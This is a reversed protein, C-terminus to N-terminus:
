LGTKLGVIPMATINNLRVRPDELLAKWVALLDPNQPNQELQQSLEAITEYWLGNQAFLLVREHPSATELQTALEVPMAVRELWGEGLFEEDALYWRYRQGVELAPVSEPLPLYVFGGEQTVELTTSYIEQHNQDELVFKISDASDSMFWVFTPHTAATLGIKQQPVVPMVKGNGRSVTDERDTPAGRQPPEYELVELVDSPRLHAVADSRDTPTGRQPPEYESIEQVQVLKPQSSFGEPSAVAAVAPQLVSLAIVVNLVKYRRLWTQGSM